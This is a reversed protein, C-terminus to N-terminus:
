HGPPGARGSRSVRLAPSCGLRVHFNHGLGASMIYTRPPVRGVLCFWSVGRISLLPWEPILGAKTIIFNIQKVGCIIGPASFFRGPLM